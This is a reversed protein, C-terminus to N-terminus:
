DVSSKSEPHCPQAYTMMGIYSIHSEIISFSLFIM